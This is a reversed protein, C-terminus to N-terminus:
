HRLGFPLPLLDSQGAQEPLTRSWTMNAIYSLSTLCHDPILGIKSPLNKRTCYHPPKRHMSVTGPGKEALSNHIGPRVTPTPLQVSM